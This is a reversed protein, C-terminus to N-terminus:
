GLTLKGSVQWTVNVTAPISTESFTNWSKRRLIIQLNNDFCILCQYEVFCLFNSRCNKSAYPCTGGSCIRFGLIFKWLIANLSCKNIKPLPTFYFIFLSFFPSLFEMGPLRSPAKPWCKSICEVDVSPVTRNPYYLAPM